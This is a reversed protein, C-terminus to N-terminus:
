PSPEQLSVALVPRPHARFKGEMGPVMRLPPPVILIPNHLEAWPKGASPGQTKETSVGDRGVCSVCGFLGFANHSESTSQDKRTKPELRM